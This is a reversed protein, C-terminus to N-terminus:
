QKVTSIAAPQTLSFFNKKKKQLRSVCYADYAAMDQLAVLTETLNVTKQHWWFTSIIKLESEEHSQKSNRDNRTQDPTMTALRHSFGEQRVPM